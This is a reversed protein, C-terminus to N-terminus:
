FKGASHIKGIHNEVPWHVPDLAPYKIDQLFSSSLIIVGLSGASHNYEGTSTKCRITNEKKNKQMAKKTKKECPFHSHSFKQNKM